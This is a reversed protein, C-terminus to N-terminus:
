IPQIEGKSTLVSSSAKSNLSYLTLAEKAKSTM